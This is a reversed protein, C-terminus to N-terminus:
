PSSDAPSQLSRPSWSSRPHAPWAGLSHLSPRLSPPGVRTGGGPPPVPRARLGMCKWWLLGGGETIPVALGWTLLPEPLSLIRSWGLPLESGLTRLPIGLQAAAKNLAWYLGLGWLWPLHGPDWLQSGGLPADLGQNRRQPHLGQTRMKERGTRCHGQKPVSRWCSSFSDHAM